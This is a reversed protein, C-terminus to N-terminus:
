HFLLVMIVFSISLYSQPHRWREAFRRYDSFQSRDFSENGTLANTLIEQFNSLLSKMEETRAFDTPMYGNRDPIQVHAGLHLLKTAFECNNAKTAYHLLTKKYEDQFDINSVFDLIPLFLDGHSMTMQLCKFVTGPDVHRNKVLYLACRLACFKGCLEMLSEKPEFETEFYCQKMMEPDDKRIAYEIPNRWNVLKESGSVQIRIRCENDINIGQCNREDYRYVIMGTSTELVRVNGSKLLLVMYSSDSYEKYDQIDLEEEVQIVIGQKIGHVLTTKSSNWFVIWRSTASSLYQISDDKTHHYWAELSPLTWVETTASYTSFVFKSDPSFVSHSSPSFRKLNSFIGKIRCLDSFIVAYTGDNSITWGRITWFDTGGFSSSISCESFHSVSFTLMKKSSQADWVSILDAHNPGVISHNRSGLLAMVIEGRPSMKVLKVLPHSPPHHANGDILDPVVTCIRRGTDVDMVAIQNEELYSAVRKGDDSFGVFMSFSCDFRYPYGSPTRKPWTWKWSLTRLDYLHMTRDSTMAIMSKGVPCFLLDEIGINEKFKICGISKGTSAEQLLVQNDVTYVVLEENALIRADGPLQYLLRGELSHVDTFPNSVKKETKCFFRPLRRTDTVTSM